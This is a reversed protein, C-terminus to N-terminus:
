DPVLPGGLVASYEVLVRDLRPVLPRAQDTLEEITQERPPEDEPSLDQSIWVAWGERERMRTHAHAHTHTYPHMRTHTHAPRAALEPTLLPQWAPSPLIRPPLPLPPPVPPFTNGDQDSVQRRISRVATQSDSCCRQSTPRRRLPRGASCRRRALTGM